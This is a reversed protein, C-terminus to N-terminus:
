SPSTPPSGTSRRRRPRLPAMETVEDVGLVHELVPLEARDLEAVVATAEAGHVVARAGVAALERTLEPLPSGPNLPVGVFGGRAAALWALVFTPTNGAVIAIRDGVDLGLGALGAQLGAVDRRLEGYTIRADGAVLAVTDDGHGDIIGAVNVAGTQGRM